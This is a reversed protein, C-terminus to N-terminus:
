KVGNRLDTVDAGRIPVGGAIVNTYSIATVGIASRAADLASRLESIHAAKIATGALSPDTFTAAALAAAARVANVATRLQDIHVAKVKTSAAVIPEDNFVITTAIDPVSYATPVSANNISRVRYVYTIGAAVTGDTFGRSTPSAILAPLGGFSSRTVEYHNNGIVGAWSLIVSSTGSATAILTPASGAPLDVYLTYNAVTACGATDTVTITFSFTGGETPTGSLTTGSFTMGSPLAGNETFVATGVAGSQSFVVNYPTNLTAAAITSPTITPCAPTTNLIIKPAGGVVLDVSGNADLDGAAFADFLGSTANIPTAASFAGAGDGRYINVRQQSNDLVVDPKGDRNLDTIVVHRGDSNPISTGAHFTGDGNGLLVAGTAVVLDTLGDGNVDGAALGMQTTTSTGGGTTSGINFTGNGNGLLLTVTGTSDDGVAIDLFNDANFFAVALGTARSRPTYVYSNACFLGGPPAMCIEIRGTNFTPSILDPFGDGNFDGHEVVTAHSGTSSVHKYKLPVTAHGAHMWVTAGGWMGLAVDDIGDGTNDYISVAANVGSVVRPIQVISDFTGDGHGLFLSCYNVDTAFVDLKGDGNFDGVANSYVNNDFTYGALTVPTAFSMAACCGGSLYTFATRKTGAMNNANTVKVDVTAGAHAGTTATITTSNVVVVGTAPVGGITVTAGGLFLTGRITVATGGAAPGSVPFISVVAPAAVCGSVLVWPESMASTCGNITSQFTYSGPATANYAGYIAGSIAVGDKFWQGTDPSNSIQVSGGPCITNTYANLTPAQPQSVTVTASGSSTGSCNADSVATIIYTTTSSPSVTRTASASSVTQQAGDSWSLNWPATGTLSIAISASQGPCITSNGSVAATPAAGGAPFVVPSSSMTASMPTLATGLCNNRATVFYYYTTGASGTTDQYSAGAVNAALLTAASPNSTTGRYVSVTGSTANTGWATVATWSLSVNPTNCAAGVSATLAGVSPASCHVISATAADELRTDGATPYFERSDTWLPHVQRNYAVLGSYDGYQNANYATNEISNENSYGVHNVWSGGSDAVLLNPEFSSGGDISRAYFLQTRRNNADGRTDYWSANVSGDTPDVSMWPFFQTAAGGDDNVLVRPSWSAGNDSSRSLYVNTNTGSTTGSPFDTFVVYLRGYYASAPNSDLSLSAFANIGRKDQAPPVNNTGFSLLSQSAVVVPTSWSAGGDISKSFVTSEATQTNGSYYLRNWIAYVTGDPGVKIDGGIDYNGVSPTPLIVTNWSAGNDSYAVREVNNQDWIVFIRGPHSRTSAPGPSNDVAVFEKDDFLAPDAIHNVITGLYTWSNGVDSSRYCVIAAGSSTGTKNQSILMYVAVARGQSDWAVAPDSGFYASAGNVGGTLSSPWPACRHIWTAGSDSSGYLAQTGYTKAAGAPAQCGSSPDRYFTNAGAVLQLPNNPNVAIQVEGQYKDVGGAPDVNSGISAALTRFFAEAQPTPSVLGAGETGAPVGAINFLGQKQRLTKWLKSSCEVVPSAEVMTRHERRWREFAEGPDESAANVHDLIDQDIVGRCGAVDPVQPLTVPPISQAFASLAAFALFFALRAIKM